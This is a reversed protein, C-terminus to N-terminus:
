ESAIYVTTGNQSNATKYIPVKKVTVNDTMLKNKTGLVTEEKAKPTVEYEGSYREATEGGASARYLEAEYEPIDLEVSLCLCDM